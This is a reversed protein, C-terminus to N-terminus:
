FAGGLSLGAVGPGVLPAARTPRKASVPLAVLAIGAGLLVIGAVSGAIWLPMRQRANTENADFDARIRTQDARETENCTPAPDSPQRCAEAFQDELTSKKTAYAVYSITTLGVLAAGVALGGIGLWQRTALGSDSSGTEARPERVLVVVQRGKVNEKAVIIETGSARSRAEVRVARSGPDVAIARGDIRTAVLRDDVFVDAEAVDRGRDDKVDVVITPIAASVESAWQACDDRVIRPCDVRACALLQEHAAGLKGAARLRQGSEAASTCATVTDDARADAAFAATGCVVLVLGVRRRLM